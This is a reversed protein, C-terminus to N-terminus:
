PGPPPYREPPRLALGPWALSAPPSPLPGTSAGRPYRCRPEQDAGDAGVASRPGRGGPTRGGRGRTNGKLRPPSPSARASEGHQQSMLGSHPAQRTQARWPRGLGTRRDPPAGGCPPPSLALAAPRQERVQPRDSASFLQGPSLVCGGGDGVGQRTEGVVLHALLAQCALGRASEEGVLCVWKRGPDARNARGAPGLPVQTAPLM